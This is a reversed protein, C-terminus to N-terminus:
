TVREREWGRGAWNDINELGLHCFHCKEELRRCQPCGNLCKPASLSSTSCTEEKVIIGLM